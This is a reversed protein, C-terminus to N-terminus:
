NITSRGGHIAAALTRAGIVVRPGPIALAEETLLHIRGTKVAPIGPLGNWVLREASLQAATSTPRRMELIVAPARALLMETTAQVSERKVDAFVNSAGALHMLDHLFGMGGAAYIGRLAGPERGFILAIKPRPLNAVSARVAALEAEIRSAARNAEDRRGVREGLARMTQTVDALGAHRYRYYPIAARDLRKMLDDQSGYVVVLDPKLTLIREFDPDILAGVKPRTTAEPPFTDYSSVGVVLDGAGIAFLMETVAPILSVVRRASTQAARAETGGGASLVLWTGCLVALGYATPRLVHAPGRLGYAALRLGIKIVAGEGIAV